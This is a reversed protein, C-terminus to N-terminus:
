ALPHLEKLKSLMRDYGLFKALWFVDQGDANTWTPDAGGLLLLSVIEWNDRYVAWFLPWEGDTNRVNPNAGRSILYRVAREDQNYVAWFLPTWGHPDTCNASAGAELLQDALDFRSHYIAYFFLTLGKADVAEPHWSWAQLVERLDEISGSRIVALIQEPVHRLKSEYM